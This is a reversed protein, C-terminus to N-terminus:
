APPLQKINVAQGYNNSGTMGEKNGFVNLVFSYIEVNNVRQYSICLKNRSLDSIVDIINYRHEDNIIVEGNNINWIESNNDSSNTFKWRGNIYDISNSKQNSNSYEKLNNRENSINDLEVKTRELENLLRDNERDRNELRSVIIKHEQEKLQHATEIETIKSLYTKANSTIDIIKDQSATNIKIQYEKIWARIYPFFITYIIAVGLPIFLNSTLNINKLIAQRYSLFGDLKLENQKYFFLYMPIQWNIIIWSILYSAIIPNNLRSRLEKFFDKLEEM